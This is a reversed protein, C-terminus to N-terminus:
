RHTREASAQRDGLISRGLRNVPTQLDGPIVKERMALRHEAM